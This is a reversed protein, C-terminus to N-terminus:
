MKEMPDQVEEADESLAKIKRGKIAVEYRGDNKQCILAHLKDYDDVIIKDTQRGDNIFQIGDDEVILKGYNIQKNSQLGDSITQTLDKFDYVWKRKPILKNRAKDILRQGFERIIQDFQNPFAELVASINEWTARREPASKIERSFNLGISTKFIQNVWKIPDRLNNLM